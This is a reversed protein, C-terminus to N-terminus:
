KEGQNESEKRLMELLKGLNDSNRQRFEGEAARMFLKCAGLAMDGILRMQKLDDKDLPTEVIEILRHLGSMAARGLAEAPMLLDHPRDMVTAPLQASLEDVQAGLHVKAEEAM